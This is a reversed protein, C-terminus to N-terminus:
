RPWLVCILRYTMDSEGVRPHTTQNSTLIRKGRCLCGGLRAVTPPLPLLLADLFRSIRPLTGPSTAVRFRFGIGVEAVLSLSSRRSCGDSVFCCRTALFGSVSVSRGGMKRM